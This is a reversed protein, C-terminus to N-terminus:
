KLPSTGKYGICEWWINFRPAWRVGDEDEFEDLITITGVRLVPWRAKAEDLTIYMEINM